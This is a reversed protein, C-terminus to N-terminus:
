GLFNGFIRLIDNYTLFVFFSILLVAFVVIIKELTKPKVRRKSIMEFFSFMITGGDLMPIPLLNIVGLNLSIAGIWFLAEKFSVMSTDHVVQVIGVPGTIYKPSLAGTFLASLTRWIETFVNEFLKTPKPNYVVKRDQPNPLGLVLLNESKQLLSLLHHRKDPDEIAEIEKRRQLREAEVWAKAELSMPFNSRAMPVVAPLLVLNGTQKIPKKTGISSAIKNLSAYSFDQNFTSDADMWSIKLAAQPNREVIINVKKQQINQILQFSRTIPTGQVALIRDGSKLPEDMDGFIYKPFAEEQDTQDIFRLVNEVLCDYTLNYPIVYLDQFKQEKLGAEHQWDILEEKFEPDPRLERAPVRPVRRQFIHEGRQITLYVRGDNLVSSLQESSYILEGDVWLIRDGYRIGTDQLPSGELFPNEEGNSLKEYIVYNAPSLVGATLISRNLDHPNPYPKVQYEFPTREATEPNVKFGQVELEGSSFMPAYLHDKSTQYPYQDYSVIEDGPRIGEAYLESSPDIWGIRHTFESFNKDRGGISWLFTFAILAFILNVFPGMFAVKIREWPTKGFFGDPVDYPDVGEDTETGAIKVYGGFLLWGIQWKVGDKVWTYIPKGFGIAFTEVRMGVRRAMWFHGLEHIFILFSLGLIAFIVYIFSVVM